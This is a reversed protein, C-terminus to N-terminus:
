TNRLLQKQTAPLSKLPFATGSRQHPMASRADPSSPKWGLDLCTSATVMRRVFRLSYIIEHGVKIPEPRGDRFDVVAFLSLALRTPSVTENM